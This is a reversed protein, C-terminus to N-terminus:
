PRGGGQGTQKRLFVFSVKAFLSHRLGVDGVGEFEKIM